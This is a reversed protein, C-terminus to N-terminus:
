LCPRGHGGRTMGTEDETPPTTPRASTPTRTPKGGPCCSAASGSSTPRATTAILQDLEAEFASMAQQQDPNRLAQAMALWSAGRGTENLFRHVTYSWSYVMEGGKDYDLHLIDALAPRDNAPRGAVNDLGRAFCQGHAVFEALGESWWTTRNLPYHGFSGYQNFRGDPLARVRPAPEVGPVSPAEM